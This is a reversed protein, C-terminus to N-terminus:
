PPIAKEDGPKMGGLHDLTKKYDAHTPPYVKRAEAGSPGRLDLELTGDPRM